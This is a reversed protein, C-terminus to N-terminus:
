ISHYVVGEAGPRRLGCLSSGPADHRPAALTMGTGVGSTLTCTLQVKSSQM